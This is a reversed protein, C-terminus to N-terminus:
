LEKPLDTTAPIEDRLLRGIAGTLSLYYDSAHPEYTLLQSAGVPVDNTTKFIQTGEDMEDFMAIYLTDSGARKAALAQNWLFQGGERPIHDYKANEHKYRNGWSFGPFALPMYHVGNADCWEQDPTVYDIGRKLATESGGFRGVTWPLVVDASRILDHLKPDDTADKQLTRWYTPVGLMVTCGGYEPDNKFFEVLTSIEDTTYARNRFGVGWIAVLPKGNEHLYNPDKLIGLRDCLGRWDDMVMPMEGHRISSLDYMISYSRGHAQAGQQVYKVMKNNSPQLLEWQHHGGELVDHAFRQLFIGDIGYEKMWKFHLDVTTASQSTFAYATSGDKHKFSTPYKEADPFESMDPWYDIGAEGPEFAEEYTEYHEWGLGSGDTPTRYWGQYGAFVKGSLGQAADVVAISKDGRACASFCLILSAFLPFIYTNRM